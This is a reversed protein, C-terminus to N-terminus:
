GAGAGARTASPSSTLVEPGDPTILVADRGFVAGIGQQWVYCSVALVMGPELVEADATAQLHPTVVPPDFGLGLGHAVPMPPLPEGAAAYAALLGSAPRGPRCAGVLRDWLANWREYLSGTDVDGVPWTRGVEGVYGDALVGAAFAVLDGAHVRGDSRARRWPHEKSTVWAGDQTAPTSVGATAQAELMVGTLEKESVGERLEAVAAALSREAVRLAGRLTAIEAPTKVRRAARMAPEGDVLEANPFAMPLLRAFSPTLADTGVRRATAAGDINKLVEILTMPNWALGYLREHPIDDPIGEDWTSNLHIEGTSRVITCIPGFPRTGAVWLQPAGSFYRVNAQRGLVLVDLDHEEMQAFARERRSIRLARDDPLIETAM